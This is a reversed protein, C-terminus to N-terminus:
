TVNYYVSTMTTYKLENNMTTKVKHMQTPPKVNVFKCLRITNLFRSVICISLNSMIILIKILKILHILHILNIINIINPRSIISILSIQNLLSFIHILYDYDNLTQSQYKQLKNRSPQEYKSWLQHMHSMALKRLWRLRLFMFSKDGM